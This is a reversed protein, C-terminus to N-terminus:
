VFFCTKSKAHIYLTLDDLTVKNVARYSFCHCVGRNLGQMIGFVDGPALLEHTTETLDPRVSVVAVTGCAVWHMRTESDGAVIIYNGAINRTIYPFSTGPPLLYTQEYCPGTKGYGKPVFVLFEIM